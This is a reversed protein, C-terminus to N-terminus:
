DYHFLKTNAHNSNAVNPFVVSTEVSLKRLRVERCDVIDILGLRLSKCIFMTDNSGGREFFKDSTHICSRNRCRGASMEFDGLCQESSAFM